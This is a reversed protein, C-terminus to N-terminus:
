FYKEVSLAKDYNIVVSEKVEHRFFQFVQNALKM